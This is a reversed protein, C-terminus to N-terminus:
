DETITPKKTPIAYSIYLNAAVNVRNKYKGFGPILYPTLKKESIGFRRKGRVTWGLFVNKSIEAKVGVVLEGWFANFPENPYNFVVDSGTNNIIINEADQTFGSYALRFGMYFMDRDDKDIYKLFNNDIGARFFLGNTHLQYNDKELNVFENGFEFVPFYRGKFETDVSIEFGGRSIGDIFPYLYRTPDISIRFYATRNAPVVYKPREDQPEGTADEVTEVQAQLVVPLFLLLSIYLQLIKM